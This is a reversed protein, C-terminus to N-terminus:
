SSSSPWVHLAGAHETFTRIQWLRPRPPPFNRRPHHPRAPRRPRAPLRRRKIAAIVAARITALDRGIEALIVKAGRQAIGPVEMLREAAPLAPQQAQGGDAPAAAAPLDTVLEEIRATLKGIQSSLGDIQDLLIRAIEAHHEDFQGNLASILATRKTKLRGRALGALVWPDREGAILAEVMDRVSMGEIKSAVSSV